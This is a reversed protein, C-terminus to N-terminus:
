SCTASARAASSSPWRRPTSARPRRLARLRRARRAPLEDRDEQPGARRLGRLARRGRQVLLPERRLRAAAGRDDRRVAQPDRRLHRRLDRPVLAADQRDADSRGRARPRDRALGDLEHLHALKPAQGRRAAVLRALNDELVDRILTSKGSGSVGTVCVLRALPLAVDLERLNHRTVGELELWATDAAGKRTKRRPACRIGRRRPSCAARSRASARSCTRAAHRQRHGRRRQPRRRSRSRRRARRPSDDGRRARRRRGHQGEGRAEDITDLLLANDRPHLGITPEDLIYCVGRLTRASSRPSGSASRKAARCRRRRAISRSTVWASSISSASGARRAGARM